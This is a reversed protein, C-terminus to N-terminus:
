RPPRLLLVPYREGIVEHLSTSGIMLREAFGHGQSGVVLLDANMEQMVRHITEDVHGAEVRSDTPIGHMSLWMAMAEGGTELPNRVDAVASPGSPQRTGILHLDHKPKDKVTLLTLHSLGKPAFSILLKLCRACYASQDTAFVARVPKDVLPDDRAVLISQKASIALGRAVSAGLLAGFVGKVTSAVAILGAGFQDSIEVLSSIPYGDTIMTTPRLNLLDAELNAESLVMEGSRRLTDYVSETEAFMGYASYPIALQMPETVHLLLTEDIACQLRGLLRIAAPSRRELDVGVVCKM